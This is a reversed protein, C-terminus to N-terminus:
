ANLSLHLGDVIAFLSAVPQGADQGVYVEPDRNRNQDTPQQKQFGNV